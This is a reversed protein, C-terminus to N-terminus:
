RTKDAGDDESLLLVDDEKRGLVRRTVIHSLAGVPGFFLTLLLSHATFVGNKLGDVYIYRGM